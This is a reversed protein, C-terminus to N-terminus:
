RRRLSRTVRQTFSPRVAETTRSANKELAAQRRTLEAVTEELARLDKAAAPSPDLKAGGMPLKAAQASRGQDGRHGQRLWAMRDVIQRRGVPGDAMLTHVPGALGASAVAEDYGPNENGPQFVHSLGHRELFATYTAFTPVARKEFASLDIEDYLKQLDAQAGVEAFPKWPIGHYDALEATRSDHALVMSPTGALVGAVNGHIRTGTVFEFTALYDIWTQADVFHRLRDQLYLPHDPHVPFRSKKASPKHEGWLMFALATHTQPVVISDAFREINHDLFDAMGPVEPTYSMALTRGELGLTETKKVMPKPLGHLFLSPCGIIDIGDAPFGLHELLEATYAGRVGISPSRDLVAGVFGRVATEVEPDLDDFSGGYPMQAGVGVVSVPVKVRRIVETLKTLPKAFTGRFSNALPLVFHDFRDDIRAAAREPTQNSREFVYGDTVIETTPTSLARHVSSYFLMNGSNAGFVANASVALSQEHTMARRPDKGARMLIRTM